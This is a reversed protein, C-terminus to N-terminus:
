KSSRPMFDDEPEPDPFKEIGLARLAKAKTIIPICKTILNINRDLALAVGEAVKLAMAVKFYGADLRVTHLRALDCIKTFYDGIHEFFNDKESDMVLQQISQCFEDEHLVQQDKLNANEIMYKGASYGDHKMFAFCIDVLKEHEAESKSSFVIGCDLIVLRPEGNPMMQVYINGIICLVYLYMCIIYIHMVIVNM